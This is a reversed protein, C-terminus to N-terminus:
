CQDIYIRYRLRNWVAFTFLETVKIRLDGERRSYEKVLLQPLIGIVCNIHVAEEVFASLRVNLTLLITPIPQKTSAKFIHKLWISPFLVVCANM